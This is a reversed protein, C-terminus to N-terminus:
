MNKTAVAYCKLKKGGTEEEYVTVAVQLADKLTEAM